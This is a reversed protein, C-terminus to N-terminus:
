HSKNGEDKKKSKHLWYAQDQYEQWLEATRIPWHALCHDPDSIPLGLINLIDRLGFYLTVSGFNFVQEKPNYHSALAEVLFWCVRQEQRAFKLLNEFGTGQLFNEVEDGVDFNDAAKSHVYVKGLVSKVPFKEELSEVARKGSSKRAM